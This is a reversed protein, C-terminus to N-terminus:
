YFFFDHRRSLDIYLPKAFSTVHPCKASLATPIPPNKFALLLILCLTTYEMQRMLFLCWATSWFASPRLGLRHLTWLLKQAYFHCLLIQKNVALSLTPPLCAVWLSSLFITCCDQFTILSTLLPIRLLPLSTPLCRCSKELTADSIDRTHHGICRRQSLVRPM